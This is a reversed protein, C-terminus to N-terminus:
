FNSNATFFSESVQQSYITDPRAEMPRGAAKLRAAAASVVAPSGFSSPDVVSQARMGGALYAATADDYGSNGVFGALLSPQSSTATNAM